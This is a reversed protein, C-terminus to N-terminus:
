LFCSVMCMCAQKSQIPGFINNHNRAQMRERRSRVTEVKQKKSPLVTRGQHLLLTDSYVLPSSTVSVFYCPM